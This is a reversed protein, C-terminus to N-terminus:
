LVLDERVREFILYDFPNETFSQPSGDVGNYVNEHSKIWGIFSDQAYTYGTASILIDYAGKKLPAYIDIPVFCYAYNDSTELATKIQASTFSDSALTDGNTNKLSVTFTGSPANFMLIKVSLGSVQYVRDYLINVRQTLTTKLEDVVLFSM